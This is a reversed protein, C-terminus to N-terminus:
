RGTRLYRLLGHMQMGGGVALIREIKEGPYDKAFAGLAAKFEKSLSEFVSSLASEWRSWRDVRSPDRKWEEAQQLTLHFERVLARSFTHGGVGLYRGWLCRPSHVIMCTGSAGMDLLVTAGRRGDGNQESSALEFGLYNHLALYESQLVDPQIDLRKHTEEAYEIHRRTLALLLHATEGEGVKEETDPRYRRWRYDQLDGPLIHQIEFRIAEEIKKEAMAPFHLTRCVTLRAPLSLCLREGKLTHMGRFQDFSEDILDRTEGYDAAQSLLKRHPIAECESVKVRKGAELSALKVAKIGHDGIDIGWASEHRKEGMLKAMRGMMGPTTESFDVRVPGKGIGQLALGIAITFMGPYERRLSVPVEDTEIRESECHWEVPCNWPTKTTKAWRVPLLRDPADLLTRRKQYEVALKRITEDKPLRRLLRKLVEKLADDVYQSNNADWFLASLDDVDQLLAESHTTRASSPIRRLLDLAEDYRKVSLRQEAKAVLQDRMRTAIKCALPHDPQLRQLREIAPLLDNARKQALLDRLQQALQEVEAKRVRTDKLLTEMATSRLPEPIQELIRMASDFDFRAFAEQAEEHATNALHEWRDYEHRVHQLKQQARAVHQKLRPDQTQSISGLILKAEAFRHERELREARALNDEVNQVQQQVIEAMNIGCQGCFREDVPVDSGCGHCKEWLNTGCDGCFRRGGASLNPMGCQPCTISGASGNAAQSPIPQPSYRASDPHMPRSRTMAADSNTPGEPLPEEAPLPAFADLRRSKEEVIESEQSVREGPADRPLEARIM